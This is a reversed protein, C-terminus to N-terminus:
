KNKATNPRRKQALAKELQPLRPGSKMATRPGRVIKNCLVPELRAPETTTAWPALQEAAHPIKGSWPEFGYGRCQCASEWGSCWWPLGLAIRKFSYVLDRQKSRLVRSISLTFGVEKGHGISGEMLRGRGVERGKAWEVGAVNAKNRVRAGAM